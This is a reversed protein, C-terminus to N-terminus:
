EGRRQSFPDERRENSDLRGELTEIRSELAQIREVLFGNVAEQNRILGMLLENLGRQSLPGNVGILEKIGPQDTLDELKEIPEPVWIM